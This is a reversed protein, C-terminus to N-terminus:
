DEVSEENYQGQGISIEQKPTVDGTQSKDNCTFPAGSMSQDFPAESQHSSDM